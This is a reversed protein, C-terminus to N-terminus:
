TRPKPTRMRIKEIKQIEVLRGDHVNLIVSGYQLSRLTVILQRLLDREGDSLSAEPVSQSTMTM